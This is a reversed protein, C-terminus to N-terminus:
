KIKAIRDFRVNTYSYILKQGLDSVLEKLNPIALDFGNKLTDINCDITSLMNSQFSYKSKTQGLTDPMESSFIVYYHHHLNEYAFLLPNLKSDIEYIEKRLEDMKTINESSRNQYYNEMLVSLHTSLFIKESRLEKIQQDLEEIKNPM